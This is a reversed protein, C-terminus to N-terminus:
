RPTGAASRRRSARRRAVSVCGSAAWAALRRGSPVAASRARCSRAARVEDRVDQLRIVRPRDAAADFDGDAAARVDHRFDAMSAGQTHIGFGPMSAPYVSDPGDSSPVPAPSRLDRLVVGDGRRPRPQFADCVAEPKLVSLKPASASPGVATGQGPLGGRGRFRRPRAAPPDRQLPPDTEASSAGPALRAPSRPASGLPAGRPASELAAARGASRRRKPWRM